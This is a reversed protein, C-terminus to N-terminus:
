FGAARRRKSKKKGPTAPAAVRSGFAGKSPQTMPLENVPQSSYTNYMAPQSGSPQANAQSSSAAANARDRSLFREARRKRRANERRSRYDDDGSEEAAAARQVAEWSYKAPDAGPVSPWQSILSTRAPGFETKPELSVAYQRLRAITPDEMVTAASIVSPAPTPLSFQPNEVARSHVQSSFYPLSSARSVEDIDKLMQLPTGDEVIPPPRPEFLKNRLSIGVSSLWLEMAIKRVLRAKALRVPGPTKRPLNTVWVNILQDYIQLLNPCITNSSLDDSFMGPCSILRSLHFKSSADEEDEDFTNMFDLFETVTKAAEDLDGSPSANNSLELCTKLSMSDMQKDNQMQISIDRFAMEMDTDSDNSTTKNFIREFVPQMNIRLLLDKSAKNIDISFRDNKTTLSSMQDVLVDDDDEDPVIFDDALRRATMRISNDMIKYTPAVLSSQSTWKQQSSLIESAWLCSVLELNTTLMWAQYFKVGAEMYDLGTGEASDKPILYPASCISLGEAKLTKEESIVPSLRFTGQFTRAIKGDMFFTYTNLRSNESSSIFVTLDTENDDKSMTLKMSDDTATRYHQHSLIVKVGSEVNLGDEGTPTVKLWFIRTTTLVFLHSLDVTSRKIDLIWDKLLLTNFSYSPLRTPKSKTDFIALHRRNAVVMTSVSGAWLVRHWEGVDGPLKHAPIAPDESFDDYVHGMKGSVIKFASRKKQRGEIDWSSWHGARDVVAFQRAYWPNFSVDVHEKSGSEQCTLTAVPNADLRSPPYTAIHGAPAIFPKPVKRFIPRFITIMSAQRVAFWTSLENGDDVSAIQLITGGTGFWHGQDANTSGMSLRVGNQSEWGLKEPRPKVLKLVHGAEGCPIAVIPAIKSGSTHNVDAAGGIAMLTSTKFRNLTADLTDKFLNATLTGGPFTEPRKKTLWRQQTRAILKGNGPIDRISPSICQTFPLLQQFRHVRNVDQSFLWQEENIDYSFEGFHGHVLDTARHDTM